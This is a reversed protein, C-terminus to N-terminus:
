AIGICRERTRLQSSRQVFKVNHQRGDRIPQVALQQPGTRPYLEDGIETGPHLM